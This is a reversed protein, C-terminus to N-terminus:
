VARTAKPNYRAVYLNVTPPTTGLSFDELSVEGIFSHKKNKKKEAANIDTNNNVAKLIDVALARKAHEDAIQSLVCKYQHRLLLNIWEFSGSEVTTFEANISDKVLKRAKLERQIEAEKEKADVRVCDFFMVSCNSDIPRAFLRAHKYVRVVLGDGFNQHRSFTADMRQRRERINKQHEVQQQEDSIVRKKEM